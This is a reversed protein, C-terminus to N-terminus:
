YFATLRELMSCWAPVLGAEKCGRRLLDLYRRSPSLELPPLGVFTQPQRRFRLTYARITEASPSQLDVASSYPQLEVNAVQYAFPVGETACVKLWDSLQLEYLVGHCIEGRKEELNAFAPELPSLGLATFALRNDLCLAPTRSLPRCGRLGEIIDSLMNSGYAFYRVTPTSQLAQARLYPMVVVLAVLAQQSGWM